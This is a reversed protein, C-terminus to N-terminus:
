KVKKVIKINFTGSNNAGTASISSGVKIINRAEYYHEALEKFSDITMEIESKHYVGCKFLLKRIITQIM